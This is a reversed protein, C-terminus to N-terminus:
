PVEDMEQYKAFETALRQRYLETDEGAEAGAAELEVKRAAGQLVWIRLILYLGVAGAAVAAFPLIWATLNFGKKTPASLVREGYQGVFYALIGKKDAGGELKTKIVDRIQDATGCTCAEVIMTCGCQCMLEKEIDRVTTDAYAPVVRVALLFVVVTLVAISRKM